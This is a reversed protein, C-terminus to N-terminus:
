WEKEGIEKIRKRKERKLGSGKRKRGEKRTEVTEL